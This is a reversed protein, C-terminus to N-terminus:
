ANRREDRVRPHPRSSKASRLISIEMVERVCLNVLTKPFSVVGEQRKQTGRMGEPLISEYIRSVHRGVCLDTKRRNEPM